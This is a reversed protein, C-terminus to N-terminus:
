VPNGAFETAATVFAPFVSPRPLVFSLPSICILAFHIGAFVVEQLPTLFCVSM